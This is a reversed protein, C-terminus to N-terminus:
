NNCEYKQKDKYTNMCSRKVKFLVGTWKKHNKYSGIFEMHHKKWVYKGEGHYENNKFRGEYIGIVTSDSKNYLTLHGLGNRKNDITQGSYQIIQHGTYYKHISYEGQVAHSTANVVVGRTGFGKEKQIWPHSIEFNSFGLYSGVNM